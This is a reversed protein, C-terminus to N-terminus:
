QRHILLTIIIIIIILFTLYSSSSLSIISLDTVHFQLTSPVWIKLNVNLYPTMSYLKPITPSMISIIHVNIHKILDTIEQMRKIILM